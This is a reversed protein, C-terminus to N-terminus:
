SAPERGKTVMSLLVYFVALLGDAVTSYLRAVISAVIAQEIPMFQSAFIVIVAERVGIGSPVFIALIGVAGAVVYAAALPAYASASVDLFSAVVLVFGLGNLIRPLIFLLQLKFAQLNSLFFEKGVPQKLVRTFLLNTILYMTKKNGILLAPLLILLPLLTYAWHETFTEGSVYLLLIPIGVAFSAVQLFINEYIFTILVLKKSYGHNKAWVVKSVLSGAQGPIYKLLWSMIHVKMAEVTSVPQSPTLKNLLIGWLQGSLAVATAFLAIALISLYNFTFSISQVAQWNKSLTLYFFYGVASIILLALLRRILKNKLFKM